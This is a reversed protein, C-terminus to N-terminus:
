VFNPKNSKKASTFPKTIKPVRLCIILADAINPSKKGKPKKKIIIQGKNNNEYQAQSLERKIKSLNDISSDISILYDKDYAQGNIAKYTNQFMRRALWWYQAKLNAFTDQNTAKDGQSIKRTPDDVGYSGKFASFNIKTKNDRKLSNSEGRVGAGVGVADYNLNYCDNEDCNKVAKRTTLTTDNDDDAWEECFNFILGKRIVQANLDLGDDCVDLGSYKKGNWNENILKKHADIAADVWQKKIVVNEITSGPDRDVEQAFIHLMGISEKEARKRDYWAQDRFINSNWEMIFINKDPYIECKEFFLTNTGNHTSIDIQVDTNESLSAENSVENESFAEEDWFYISKRGGRGISDGSEGTITSGNVPNLLRMYLAHNVRTYGKPKLFVPLNDVFTRMKEFISDPDGKRDVLDAKRSGFGASFGSEFLWACVSYAGAVWTAGVGRAKNITGREKDIRMQDIWRVLDEQRPFLIFPMNKPKIIGDNRPDYTVGWDNILDIYNTSYHLKYAEIRRQNGKLKNYLKLRDKFINNYDM